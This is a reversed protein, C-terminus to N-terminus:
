LNIVKPNEQIKIPFKILYDKEQSPTFSAKVIQYSGAAIKGSSPKLEFKLDNDKDNKGV